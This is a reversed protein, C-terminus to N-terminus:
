RYIQFYKTVKRLWFLYLSILVEKSRNKTVNLSTIYKCFDVFQNKNLRTIEYCDAESLNEINNFKLFIDCKQASKRINIENLEVLNDMLDIINEPYERTNTIINNYEVDIIDM